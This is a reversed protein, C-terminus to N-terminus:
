GEVHDSLNSLFDQLREYCNQCLVTRHEVGWQKIVYADESVDVSAPSVILVEHIDSFEVEAERRRIASERCEQMRDLIAEKDEEPLRDWYSKKTRKATHAIRLDNAM